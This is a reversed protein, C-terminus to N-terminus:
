QKLGQKKLCNYLTAATQQMLKFYHQKGASIQSGTPNLPALKLKMGESLTNLLPPINPPEYFICGINETSILARLEKVRKIGPSHEPNSTVFHSRLLNNELEFYQYADHYVIFPRNQVSKLMVANDKRLKKLKLLLINLNKQYHSAHQPAQQSLIDTAFRSFLMANSISLWAHGDIDSHPRSHKLMNRALLTKIGPTDALQIFRLNETTSKLAPVFGEITNSSYFFIDAQNLMRKQSPRLQFHHASQQQSLLLGPESIGDTINSILSHLPKISVLIKMTDAFAGHCIFFVLFSCRLFIHLTRAPM